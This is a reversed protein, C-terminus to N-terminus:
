IDWECHAHWVAEEPSDGLRLNCVVAEMFEHELGEAQAAKLGELVPFALPFSEKIEKPTM